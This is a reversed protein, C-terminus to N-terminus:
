LIWANGYSNEKCLNWIQGELMGLNGQPNEEYFRWIQGRWLEVCLWYITSRYRKIFDGSRLRGTMFNGFRFRWCGTIDTHIREMCDGSSLRLSWYKEELITHLFDEFRLRWCWDITKVIREIFDEECLWWNHSGHSSKFWPMPVLKSPISWTIPHTHCFAEFM